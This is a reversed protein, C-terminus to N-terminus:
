EVRLLNRRNTFTELDTTSVWNTFQGCLASAALKSGRPGSFCARTHFVGTQIGADPIKNLSLGLDDKAIADNCKILSM